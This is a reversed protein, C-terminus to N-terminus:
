DLVTNKSDRKLFIGTRPALLVQAHMRLKVLPTRTLSM